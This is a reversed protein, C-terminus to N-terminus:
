SRYWDRPREWYTSLLYLTDGLACAIYLPMIFSVGAIKREVNGAILCKPYPKQKPREEIIRGNMIATIIQEESVQRQAMRAAVHKTAIFDRNQVMQRISDIDM